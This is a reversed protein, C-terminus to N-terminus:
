FSTKRTNQLSGDGLGDKKLSPFINKPHQPDKFCRHGRMMDCRNSVNHRPPLENIPMVEDLLTALWSVLPHFRGLGKEFTQATKWCIVCICPGLLFTMLIPDPLNWTSVCKVHMCGHMCVYMNADMRVPQCAFIFVRFCPHM